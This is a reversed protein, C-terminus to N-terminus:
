RRLQPDMASSIPPQASCSCELAVCALLVLAILLTFGGCMGSAQASGFYYVAWIVPLAILVPWDAAAPAGQM